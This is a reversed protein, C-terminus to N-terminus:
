VPWECVTVTMATCEKGDNLVGRNCIAIFRNEEECFICSNSYGNHSHHDQQSYPIPHPWQMWTQGLDRSIFYDSGTESQGRSMFAGSVILTGHAGGRKVWLCYPSSGLAGEQASIIRKGEWAADGWNLGDESYRCYIPNGELGVLEYVMFYRGDPLRTVVPMGPRLSTQSCKVSEKLMSWSRLDKTTRYVLKQSHVKNQREDCYHCVLTGDDLLVFFPEWIGRGAWGGHDLTGLPKWTRGIDRSVYLRLYSGDTESGSVGGMLLTGRPFEGVARPLEFIHPMLYTAFEEHEENIIRTLLKWSRGGDESRFIPHGQQRKLTDEPDDPSRRQEFTSLLVGNEGGASHSIKIVRGYLNSPLRIIENQEDHGKCKPVVEIDTKFLVQLEGAM